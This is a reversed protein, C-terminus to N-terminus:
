PNLLSNMNSKLGSTLIEEVGEYDPDNNDKEEEWCIPLPSNSITGPNKNELSTFTSNIDTISSTEVQEEFMMQYLGSARKSLEIGRFTIDTVRLTENYLERERRQSLQYLGIVGKSGGLGPLTRNKMNIVVLVDDQRINLSALTMDANIYSGNSYCFPYVKSGHYLNSQRIVDRVTNSLLPYTEITTGEISKIYIRIREEM